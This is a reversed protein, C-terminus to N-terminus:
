AERYLRPVAIKNCQAIQAGTTGLPCLAHPLESQEVNQWVGTLQEGGGGKSLM